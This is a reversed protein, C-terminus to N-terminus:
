SGSIQENLVQLTFDKGLPNHGQKPIDYRHVAVDDGAGDRTKFFKEFTRLPITRDYDSALNVWYDVRIRECKKALYHLVNARHPLHRRVYAADKGPFHADLVPQVQHAYWRTWDFQANNVVARAGPDMALLSLAIFGGASSGYYVRQRPDNVELLKSVVSISRSVPTPLWAPPTEQFWALSLADSGVTGPDCVFIQHSEIDSWWSSRQFVPEGHSRTLDVAGNCLVTMSHASPRRVVLLPIRLTGYLVDLRVPVDSVLLAGARVALYKLPIEHVDQPTELYTM